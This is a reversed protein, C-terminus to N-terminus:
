RMPSSSAPANMKALAQTPLDQMTLGVQLHAVVFPAPMIEFGDVRNM